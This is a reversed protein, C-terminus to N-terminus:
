RFDSKREYDKDKGTHAAAIFYGSQNKQRIYEDM